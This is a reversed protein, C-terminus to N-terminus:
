NFEYRVYKFRLQIWKFKDKHLTVWMHIRITIKAASKIGIRCCIVHLLFCFNRKIKSKMTASNNGHPMLVCAVFCTAEGQLFQFKRNWPERNGIETNCKQDGHLVLTYTTSHLFQFKKQNGIKTNCQQEGHLLLACATSCTAEGRGMSQNCSKIKIKM